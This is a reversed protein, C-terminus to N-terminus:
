CTVAKDWSAMWSLWRASEPKRTGPGQEIHFELYVWAIRPSDRRRSNRPISASIRPHRARGNGRRRGANGILGGQQRHVSVRLSGGEEESFGIVEVAMRPHTEILAIGLVVGLIGDFAGANPVTDLHSGIILRPAGADGYLGRLNGVADVRVAMGLERMWAGLLGICMTCRPPFSREPLAFGPEETMASLLRSPKAAFPKKPSAVTM